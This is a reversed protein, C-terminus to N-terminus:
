KGTKKILTAKNLSTLLALLLTKNKAHASLNGVLKRPDKALHIGM